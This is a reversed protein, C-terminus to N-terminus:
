KNIDTILESLNTYNKNLDIKYSLMVAEVEPIDITNMKKIIEHGRIPFKNLRETVKPFISNVWTM